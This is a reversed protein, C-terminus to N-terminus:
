YYQAQYTDKNFFINMLAFSTQEPDSFDFTANACLNALETSDAVGYSTYLDECTSGSDYMATLFQYAYVIVPLEFEIKGVSYEIGPASMQSLLAVQLNGGEDERNGTLAVGYKM